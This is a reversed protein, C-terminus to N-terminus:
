FNSWDKDLFERGSWKFPKPGSSEGNITGATEPLNKALAVALVPAKPDSRGPAPTAGEQSPGPPPTTILLPKRKGERRERRLMNLVRHYYPLGINIGLAPLAAHMTAHSYGKALGEEIEPLLDELQRIVSRKDNPLGTILKNIMVINKTRPLPGRRPRPPTCEKYVSHIDSTYPVNSLILDDVRQVKRTCTKYM